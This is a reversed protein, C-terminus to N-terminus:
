PGPRRVNFYMSHNCINSEFNGKEQCSISIRGDKFSNNKKQLDQVFILTLLLM